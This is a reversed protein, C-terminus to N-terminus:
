IKTQIIKTESFSFWKKLDEEFQENTYPIIKNIKNSMKLIDNCHSIKKYSNIKNEM